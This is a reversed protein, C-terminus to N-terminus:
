LFLLESFHHSPTSVLGLSGLCNHELLCPLFSLSLTTLYIMWIVEQTNIKYEASM